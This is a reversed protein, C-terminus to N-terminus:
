KKAAYQVADQLLALIAHTPIGLDTLKWLAILTKTDIRVGCSSYLGHVVIQDASLLSKLIIQHSSGREMVLQFSIPLKEFITKSISAM